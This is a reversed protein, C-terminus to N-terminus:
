GLIKKLQLVVNLLQMSEDSGDILRKDTCALVNFIQAKKYDDIEACMVMKNFKNLIIHISYNKKIVFDVSNLIDTIKKNCSNYLEYVIDDPVYNTIEYLDSMSLVSGNYDYMYKLNQLLMISHRIDGKSIEIVKDVVEEDVVLNENKAIYKLRKKMNNDTINEFRFQRCRSLIPPIIKNIYNCIFCFRTTKSMTEIVTGLALQAESTMADAEDLIVLKYTPYSSSISTRSFKIIKNRVVDIGREDSANLELVRKEMLKSGYLEKALSIVTSTNHTIILNELVFRGNGDLEFGCYEGYGLEVIAIDHFCKKHKTVKIHQDYRVCDMGISRLIFIIDDNYPLGSYNYRKLLERVVIKRTGVCTYKYPINQTDEFDDIFNIIESEPIEKTWCDVTNISVAVYDYKNILKLYDSLPMDLIKETRINKLVLVHSSNVIYEAGNSHIIKYMKDNGMVTSLVKRPTNDDGILLDGVHINKATKCAGNNYLLIKTNPDLCKGCGANGWFLMHPMEGTKLCTKLVKVVETQQVIDNLKTPRYKEVWPVTNKNAKSMMKTKQVYVIKEGDTDSDTNINLDLNDMRTIDIDIILVYIKCM